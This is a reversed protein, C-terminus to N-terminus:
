SQEEYLGFFYSYEKGFHCIAWACLSVRISCDSLRRNSWFCIEKLPRDFNRMLKIEQLVPILLVSIQYEDCFNMLGM